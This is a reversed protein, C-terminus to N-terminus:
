GIYQKMLLQTKHKLAGELTLPKSNKVLPNKLTLPVLLKKQNAILYTEIIKEFRARDKVLVKEDDIDVYTFVRKDGEEYQTNIYSEVLLLLELKEEFKNRHKIVDDTIKHFRIWNLNQWIKPSIRGLTQTRTDTLVSQALLTM